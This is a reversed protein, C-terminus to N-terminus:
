INTIVKSWDFPQQNNNPESKISHKNFPEVTALSLLQANLFKLKMELSHLRDDTGQGNVIAKAVIDIQNSIKEATETKGESKAVDVVNTFENAGFTVASGEWLKVETIEFYGGSPKTEDEVWRMKDSVYQFGISHEKIIGDQYDALADSGLTSNGLEGVAYLGKEDEALELFKGIPMEWNHHRLFAIKRNSSSGPGREQISKKFAGRRIIDNDSDVTDFVSLYVAVKRSNADFDKIFTDQGKLSYATITKKM